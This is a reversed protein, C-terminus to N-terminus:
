KICDYLPQPTMVMGAGGGFPLDDVKNHKDKTFKRIDHTVIKILKKEQARKLISTKIYSDFINPFITLIDFRM